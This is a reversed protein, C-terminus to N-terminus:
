DLFHFYSPFVKKCTLRGTIYCVFSLAITGTIVPHNIVMWDLPNQLNMIVEWVKCVLAIAGMISIVVIAGMIIFMWADSVKKFFHRHQYKLKLM